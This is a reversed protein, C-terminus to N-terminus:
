SIVFVIHKENFRTHLVDTGLAHSTSVIQSLIHYHQKETKSVRIAVSTVTEPIEANRVSYTHKPAAASKLDILRKVEVVCVNEQRQIM